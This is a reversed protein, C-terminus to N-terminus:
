VVVTVTGVQGVALLSDPTPANPTWYGVPNWGWEIDRSEIKGVDPRPNRLAQPDNVPYMGLQLQPHDVDLCEPCVLLGTPKTKVIQNKLKKLKVTQGCRDCLSIARKGSAFPNPM